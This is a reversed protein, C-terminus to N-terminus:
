NNDFWQEPQSPVIVIPGIKIAGGWAMEFFKDRKEITEEIESIKGGARRWTTKVALKKFMDPKDAFGRWISAPSWSVIKRVWPLDHRRGIRLTLNGGLSGGLVAVMKGKVPNKKDLENIFQVVYEEMFDLIEVRQKGLGNFGLRRPKGLTDLSSIARHDLQTSYGTTPLDLSIITWNEGREKGKKVFAKALTEAEESRSDMGPIYLLVKADEGISPILDSPITRDGTWNIVPKKGNTEVIMFRTTVDFGKVEFDLNYQPYATSYVNVPRWPHDDEGSVAIWGMSKRLDSQSNGYAIAHIVKYARDLASKAGAVLKEKAIGQAEPNSELRDLLTDEDLGKQAHLTKFIKYTDKGTVSLDAYANGWDEAGRAFHLAGIELSLLPNKAKAINRLSEVLRGSTRAFKAPMEYVSGPECKEDFSPQLQSVNAAISGPPPAPRSGKAWASSFLLSIGLLSFAIGKM